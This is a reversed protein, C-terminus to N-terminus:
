EPRLPNHHSGPIETSRTAYHPSSMTVTNESPASTARTVNGHTFILYISTSRGPSRNRRLPDPGRRRRACGERTLPAERRKAIAKRGGKVRSGRHARQCAQPCTLSRGAAVGRGLRFLGCADYAWTLSGVSVDTSGCIYGRIRLWATAGTTARHCGSIKLQTKVPRPDRESGNNTFPV